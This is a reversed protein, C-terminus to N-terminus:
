HFCRHTIRDGFAHDTRPKRLHLGAGRDPSLASAAKRLLLRRAPAIVVSAGVTQSSLSPGVQVRASSAAKQPSETAVTEIQTLL